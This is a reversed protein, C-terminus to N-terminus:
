GRKMNIIKENIRRVNARRQAQLDFALPDVEVKSNSELGPMIDNKQVLGLDSAHLSGDFYVTGEPDPLLEYEKIKSELEDNDPFFMTPSSTVIPNSTIKHDSRRTSTLLSIPTTLTTRVDTALKATTSFKEETKKRGVTTMTFPAVLDIAKLRRLAKEICWKLIQLNVNQGIEKCFNYAMTVFPDNNINNLDIVNTQNGRDPIVPNNTRVPPQPPVLKKKNKNVNRIWRKRRSENKNEHKKNVPFLITTRLKSENRKKKNNNNDSNDNVAGFSALIKNKMLEDIFTNNFYYKYILDDVTQEDKEELIKQDQNKLKNMPPISFLNIKVPETTPSPASTTLVTIPDETETVPKTETKAIASNLKNPVLKRSETYIEKAKKFIRAFHHQRRSIESQTQAIVNQKMNIKENQALMIKQMNYFKRQQDLFKKQQNQFDRLNISLERERKDYNVEKDKIKAETFRLEDNVKMIKSYKVNIDEYKNTLDRINQIFDNNLNNITSHIRKIDHHQKMIKKFTRTLMTLLKLLGKETIVKSNVDKSKPLVKYININPAPSRDRWEMDETDFVNRHSKNYANNLDETFEIKKVLETEYNHRDMSRKPVAINKHTTNFDTTTTLHKVVENSFNEGIKNDQIRSTENKDKNRINKEKMVNNDQFDKNDLLVAVEYPYDNFVSAPKLTSILKSKIISLKNASLTKCDNNECIKSLNQKDRIARKNRDLYSNFIPSSEVNTGIFDFNNQLIKDVDLSNARFIFENPNRLNKRRIWLGKNVVNNRELKPKLYNSEAELYSTSIFNLSSLVVTALIQKYM